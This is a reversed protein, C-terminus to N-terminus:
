QASASSPSHSRTETPDATQTAVSARGFFSIDTQTGFLRSKENQQRSRFEHIATIGTFIKEATLSVQIDGRILAENVVRLEQRSFFKNPNVGDNDLITRIDGRFADIVNTLATVNASEAALRGGQTWEGSALLVYFSEKANKATIPMLDLLQRQETTIPAPMSLFNRGSSATINFAVRMACALKEANASDDIWMQLQASLRALNNSAASYITDSVICDFDDDDDARYPFNGSSKPIENNAGSPESLSSVSNPPAPSVSDADLHSSKKDQDEQFNEPSKAFVSGQSHPELVLSADATPAVHESQARAASPEEPLATASLPPEASVPFAPESHCEEVVSAGWERRKKNRGM